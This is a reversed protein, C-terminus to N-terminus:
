QDEDENFLQKGQAPVLGYEPGFPLGVQLVKHDVVHCHAKHQPKGFLHNVGVDHQHAKLRHKVVGIHAHTQPWQAVEDDRGVKVVPVVALVLRRQVAVVRGVKGKDVIRKARRDFAVLKPGLAVAHQAVIHWVAEDLLELKWEGPLTLCLPMPQNPLGGSQRPPTICPSQVHLPKYRFTARAWTDM